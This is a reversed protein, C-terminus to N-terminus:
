LLPKYQSLNQGLHQINCSIFLISALLMKYTLTPVNPWWSCHLILKKARVFTPNVIRITCYAEIMWRRKMYSGQLIRFCVDCSITETLSNGLSTKCDLYTPQQFGMTIQTVSCIDHSHSVAYQKITPSGQMRCGDAATNIILLIHWNPTVWEM